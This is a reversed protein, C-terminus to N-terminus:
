GDFRFCCGGWIKPLDEFSSCEVIGNLVMQIGVTVERPCQLGLTEKMRGNPHLIPNSGVAKPVM